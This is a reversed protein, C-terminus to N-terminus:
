AHTTSLSFFFMNLLYMTFDIVRILSLYHFRNCSILSLASSFANKLNKEWFDTSNDIEISSQTLETMKNKLNSKLNKLRWRQEWNAYFKEYVASKQSNQCPMHPHTARLKPIPGYKQQWPTYSFTYKHIYTFM